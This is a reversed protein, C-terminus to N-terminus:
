ADTKPLYHGLYQEGYSVPWVTIKNNDMKYNWNQMMRKGDDLEFFVIFLLTSSPTNKMEDCLEVILKSLWIICTPSMVCNWLLDTYGFLTFHAQIKDNRTKIM